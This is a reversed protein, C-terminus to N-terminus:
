NAKQVVPKSVFNSGQRNRRARNPAPAATPKPAAKAEEAAVAAAIQRWAAPRAPYPCGRQLGVGKLFARRAVGAYVAAQMRKEQGNAGSLERIVGRFPIFSGVVSQAVSGASPGKNDDQPLDIDDGLVANLESVASSIRNCRTLGALDYPRAQAAILVPPIDEKRLNLDSAPTAAVDGASVSRDTVPKDPEGATAPTAALAIALTLIFRM